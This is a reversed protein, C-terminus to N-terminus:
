IASAALRYFAEARAWYYEAWQPENELESELAQKAATEALTLLAQQEM